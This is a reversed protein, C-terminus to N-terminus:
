GYYAMTTLGGIIWLLLAQFVARKVVMVLGTFGVMIGCCVLIRNVLFPWM